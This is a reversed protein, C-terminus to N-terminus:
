QGTLRNFDIALSKSVSNGLLWSKVSYSNFKFLPSWYLNRYYVTVTVSQFVSYVFITGDERWLPRVVVDFVAPTQVVPLCFRATHGLIPQVGLRLPRIATPGLAVQVQVSVVEIEPSPPPTLRRFTPYKIWMWAYRFAYLQWWIELWIYLTSSREASPLIASVPGLSTVVLFIM